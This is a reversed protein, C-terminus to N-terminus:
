RKMYFDDVNMITNVVLTMSALVAPDLGETQTKEGISIYHQTSEPQAAFRTQEEEYLKALINIQEPQAQLGTLKRFVWAIQNHLNNQLLIAQEALHKSAGVFQPDNLLVLAQMPTNTFQRKAVCVSRNPSDFATMAPHPSTRRIFTYLSRRYQAEGPDAEYKRLIHTSSTKEQWLGPPQIPKVSPGGIKQHLLGSAALANDRIMEAPLRYTPARALLLNDPDKERLEQSCSSTQRYTASLVIKKQLEQINWDDDMFTAALWDLLEPHSPLSGQLGMDHATNVLGNGFFQQWLRNAVVRSTLPNDKHLMWQVLGLRNTPFSQDFALVSTPTGPEVKETPEDYNGRNLMYTTRPNELDKMIMVEPVTDLLSFHQLRLEAIEKQLPHPHRSQWTTALDKLIQQNNPQSAM